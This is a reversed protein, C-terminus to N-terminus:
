FALDRMPNQVRLCYFKYHQTFFELVSHRVKPTSFEKDSLGAINMISDLFQRNVSM